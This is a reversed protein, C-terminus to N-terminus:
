AEVERAVEDLLRRCAREIVAFVRPFGDAGGYYPDPVDLDGTRAADPDYSRLLRIKAASASDPALRRLDRDNERDMAVVLDAGAFSRRAFQAAVHAWGDYGHSALEEGARRDIPEGVHWDGTGSSSVSVLDALGAEEVMRRFVIEATPSRCINGLCVFAVRYPATRTPPM